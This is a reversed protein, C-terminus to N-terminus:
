VLLALLELKVPFLWCFSLLFCFGPHCGLNPPLLFTLSVLFKSFHGDCGLVFAPEM